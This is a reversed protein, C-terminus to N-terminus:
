ICIAELCKSLKHFETFPSINLEKPTINFSINAKLFQLIELHCIRAWVNKTFSQAKLVVDCLFTKSAQFDFKKPCNITGYRKLVLWRISAQPLFMYM